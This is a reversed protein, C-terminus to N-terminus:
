SSERYRSEGYGPNERLLPNREMGEVSVRGSRLGLSLSKTVGVELGEGSVAREGAPAELPLLGRAGSAERTECDLM